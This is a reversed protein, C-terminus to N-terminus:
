SRHSLLWARLAKDKLWHLTVREPRFETQSRKDSPLRDCVLDSPYAYRM